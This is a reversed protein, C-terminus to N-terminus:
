LRSPVFGEGTTRVLGGAPITNWPSTCAYYLKNIGNLPSLDPEGQRGGEASKQVAFYIPFVLLYISLLLASDASTAIPGEIGIALTLFLDCPISEFSCYVFFFFVFFCFCFSFYFVFILSFSLSLLHVLVIARNCTRVYVRLVQYRTMHESVESVHHGM